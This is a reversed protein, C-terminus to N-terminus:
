MYLPVWFVSTANTCPYMLKNWADQKRRAWTMLAIHQRLHNEEHTRCRDYYHGLGSRFLSWSDGYTVNHDMSEHGFWCKSNTNSHSNSKSLDEIAAPFLSIISSSLIIGPVESTFVETVAIIQLHGDEQYHVIIHSQSLLSCCNTCYNLESFIFTSTSMNGVPWTQPALHNRSWQSDLVANSRVLDYDEGM